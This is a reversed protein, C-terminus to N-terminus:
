PPTERDTVRSWKMGVPALPKAPMRGERAPLPAPPSPTSTEAVAESLHRTM